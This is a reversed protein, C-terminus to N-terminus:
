YLKAGGGAPPRQGEDGTASPSANGEPAPPRARALAATTRQGDVIVAAGLVIWVIVTALFLARAWDEPLGAMYFLGSLLMMVFSGGLLVVLIAVPADRVADDSM